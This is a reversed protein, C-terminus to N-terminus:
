DPWGTSSAGHGRLDVTVVRYGAALVPAALFRYEQRLDGLSPVMIVLPGSGRDDYAITGEPLRFHRTTSGADGGGTALREPIGDSVYAAISTM